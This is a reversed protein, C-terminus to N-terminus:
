SARRGMFAGVATIAAGVLVVVAASSFQVGTGFALYEMGTFAVFLGVFVTGIVGWFGFGKGTGRAATRSAYKSDHVLGFGLGAVVIAFITFGNEQPPVSSYPSVFLTVLVLPISGAMIVFGLAAEWAKSM